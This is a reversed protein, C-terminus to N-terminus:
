GSFDSRGFASAALPLAACRGPKRTSVCVWRNVSDVHQMSQTPALWGRFMGPQLQVGDIESGQWCQRRHIVHVDGQARGHRNCATRLSEAGHVIVGHHGGCACRTCCASGAAAHYAGHAGIRVRADKVVAHLALNLAVQAAQAKGGKNNCAGCEQHPITPGQLLCSSRCLGKRHTKESPDVRQNGVVVACSGRRVYRARKDTGHLGRRIPLM